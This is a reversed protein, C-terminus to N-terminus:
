KWYSLKDFSIWKNTRFVSYNGFYSFWCFRNNIWWNTGNWHKRLSFVTNMTNQYDKRIIHDRYACLRNWVENSFACCWLLANRAFIVLVPHMKMLEFRIVFTKTFCGFLSPRASSANFNAAIFAFWCMCRFDAAARISILPFSPAFFRFFNSLM